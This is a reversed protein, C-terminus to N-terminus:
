KSVINTEDFDQPKEAIQYFRFTKNKCDLLANQTFLGCISRLNNIFYTWPFKLQLFKKLFRNQNYGPFENWECLRSVFINQRTDLNAETETTDMYKLSKFLWFDSVVIELQCAWYWNPLRGQSCKNRGTM